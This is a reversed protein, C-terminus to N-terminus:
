NMGTSLDLTGIYNKLNKQCDEISTNGVLMNQMESTLFTVLKSYDKYLPATEANAIIDLVVPWDEDELNEYHKKMPSMKGYTNLTNVLFDDSLLEEKIFAIALDQNQSAKPIVIGHIIAWGGNDEAGPFPMISVSDAGLIGQAEIWRGTTTAHMALAGAKFSTRAADGDAFTDISTYGDKVLNRWFNLMYTAGESTFDVTKGDEEYFTGKYSQLCAYFMQEMINTGWDFCLGTQTVKGDSDVKTLKRAYEYLEDWTKAPIIKGNEDVLGAERFMDVNVTIGYGECSLPIQYQKGEINGCEMFADYFKDRTFEGNFFNEDTFEVIYDNAAYSIIQARDGGIAIDCDTKGQSWQLMNSTIDATDVQNYVVTVGPHNAEFHEKLSDFDYKGYLWAQATISLTRNEVEVPATDVTADSNSDNTVTDAPAPAPETTSPACGAFLLGVMMVALLLSIVFSLKGHKM